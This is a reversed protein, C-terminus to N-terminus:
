LGTPPIAGVGASQRTSGAGDGDGDNDGREREYLHVTTVTSAETREVCGGGRRAMDSIGDYNHVPRFLYIEELPTADMLLM